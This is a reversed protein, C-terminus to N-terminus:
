SNPFASTPVTITSGVFSALLRWKTEDSDNQTGFQDSRRFSLNLSGPLQTYTSSM